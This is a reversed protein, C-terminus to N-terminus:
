FYNILLIGHSFNGAGPIMATMQASKAGGHKGIVSQFIDLRQNPIRFEDATIAAPNGGARIIEAIGLRQFLVPRPFPSRPFPTCTEHM